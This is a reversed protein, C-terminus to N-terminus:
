LPIFDFELNKIEMKEPSSYIPFKRKSTLILGKKSSVREIEFNNTVRSNQVTFKSFKGFSFKVKELFNETNEESDTDELYKLYSEKFEYIEEFSNLKKRTLNIEEELKFKYRVYLKLNSNIFDSRQLGLNDLQFSNTKFIINGDDYKVELFDENLNDIFESIYEKKNYSYEKKFIRIFKEKISSSFKESLKDKSYIEKFGYINELDESQLGSYTKKGKVFKGDVLFEFYSSYVAKEATNSFYFDLKEKQTVIDVIIASQGISEEHKGRVSALTILTYSVLVIVLVVLIAIPISMDGRKNNKIKKLYSM